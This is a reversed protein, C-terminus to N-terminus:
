FGRCSCYIADVKGGYVEFDPALAPHITVEISKLRKHHVISEVIPALDSYDGVLIFHEIKSDNMLTKFMEITIANDYIYGLNLTKISPHRRVFALIDSLDEYDKIDLFNLFLFKVDEAPTLNHIALRKLKPNKLAIFSLIDLTELDIRMDILEELNPLNGLIGKASTENPFRASASKTSFATFKTISKSPRLQKYFHEDTPLYYPILSISKLKKLTNFMTVILDTSISGFSLEELSEAQSKLFRILNHNMEDNERHSGDFNFIKLQFPIVELIPNRFFLKFSDPGLCLNELKKASMIFNTLQTDLEGISTEEYFRINCMELKAVNVPMLYKLTTFNCDDINLAKLHKLTSPRVLESNNSTHAAVSIEFEELLPMYKFCVSLHKFIENSIAEIFLKRVQSGHHAAVLSLTEIIEPKYLGYVYISQFKRRTNFIEDLSETWSM